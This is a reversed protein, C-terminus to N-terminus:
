RIPQVRTNKLLTMGIITTSPKSRINIRSMTIALGYRILIIGGRNAQLRIKINCNILIEKHRSIITTLHRSIKIKSNIKSRKRLIGKHNNSEEKKHRSTTRNTLLTTNQNRILINHSKNRSTINTNTLQAAHILTTSTM